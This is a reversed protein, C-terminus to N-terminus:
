KSVNLRHKTHWPFLSGGGGGGGSQFNRSRDASEKKATNFLRSLGLAHQSIKMKSSFLTQTQQGIGKVKTYM